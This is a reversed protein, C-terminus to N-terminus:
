VSVAVRPIVDVGVGVVVAVEVGVSVAVVSIAGLAVEVGVSVAVGVGDAVFPYTAGVGVGVAVVVSVGVGVGVSTGNSNVLKVAIPAVFHVSLLPSVAPQVDASLMVTSTPILQPRSAVLSSGTLILKLQAPSIFIVLPVDTDYLACPTPVPPLVTLNALVVSVSSTPVIVTVRETPAM